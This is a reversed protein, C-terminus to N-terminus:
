LNKDNKKEIKIEFPFKKIIQIIGFIPFFPLTFMCGVLSKEIDGKGFDAWFNMHLAM